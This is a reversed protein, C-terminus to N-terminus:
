NSALQFPHDIFEDYLEESFQNFAGKKRFSLLEWKNPKNQFDRIYEYYGRTHLFYSMCKGKTATRNEFTLTARNGISPQELYNHDNKLLANRIDKGKEDTGSTMNLSSGVEVYNDHLLLCAYDVEWFLRGCSLKVELTDENFNKLDFTVCMDRSALPGTVHYFDRFEWQGDKKVYVSLPINQELSWRINKEASVSKQDEAYTNYHTGFKETFKGFVYDLWFSNKAHLILSAKDIGKTLPFTIEIESIATESASGQEFQHFLNDKKSLKEEISKDNAFASVIDRSRIIEGCQNIAIVENSDHEVAIIEAQNTYQRELLENAIQLVIEPNTLWKEDLRLFDDRELPAYIAGGYIEGVFINQGNNQIYVFPCSSKMAALVIFLAVVTGMAIALGGFVFTLINAGIAKDYVDIIEITNVFLLVREGIQMKQAKIYIHVETTPDGHRKRYHNVLNTDPDLAQYHLYSLTDATFEITQDAEHIVLDKISYINSGNHLILYKSTDRVESPVPGIDKKRYTKDIKYYYCGVNYFSFGILFFLALLRCSADSLNSSKPIM